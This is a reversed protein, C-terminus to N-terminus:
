HTLFTVMNQGTRTHYTSIFGSQQYSGTDDQGVYVRKSQKRAHGRVGRM